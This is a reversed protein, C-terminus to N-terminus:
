LMEMPETTRFCHSADPPIYVVDGPKLSFTKGEVEVVGTGSTVYTEHEYPHSHNPGEAGAEFSVVRMFFNPAGDKEGIVTRLKIGHAGAEEIEEAKEELYNIHKM